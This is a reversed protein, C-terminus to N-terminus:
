LRNRLSNIMGNLMKGVERCRMELALYLESNLYGLDKSLLIFYEVEGLSGKAINIFHILEKTSSRECGEAINSPVSYAARRLQQIIGFQEQQPFTTTQKYIELVLEHAKQWVLLDQFKKIM